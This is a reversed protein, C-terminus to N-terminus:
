GAARFCWVFVPMEDNVKLQLFLTDKEVRQYPFTQFNLTLQCNLTMMMLMGDVEKEPVKKVM